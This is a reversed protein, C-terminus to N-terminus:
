PERIDNEDPARRVLVQSVQGVAVSGAASGLFNVRQMQRQAEENHLHYYHRIMKSESHGLWEKAVQEPVNSNACVSCFFHRFSHLRGDTFGDVGAPTPFREALPTLVDRILIVRVTDPKLIGGKPGHFVRGDKAPVKKQLIARLSDHIPFSRSRGSKTQRVKDGKGRNAKMSEDTLHIRKADPDIDTWRLSALESIRLGTCALATVVEGLWVLEPKSNCFEVIARVEEARWCYTTTGQPKKLHLHVLCSSPLRGDTVLWKIVQKLTTLELYETAYAYGEGDLFAAYKELARRDVQNWYAVDEDKAFVEFKDFVPRYRKVSQPRAGGVVRARGVHDLYRQRGEALTLPPTVSPGLIAKDAMGAEVAKVRDLKKLNELAENRDRTGLSHRGLDHQNSRGDAYFIGDRQGLLWVFFAGQIREKKRKAPM